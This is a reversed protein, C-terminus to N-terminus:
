EAILDEYRLRKGQMGRVMAEMQDATDMPRDNHRGSFENAYRGLHKVSIHHYTGMIGRKLMAWHSDMGATHAQERVYEGASHSVAEHPRNIGKYATAEDTFIQADDETNGEVFGQLVKKTTAPVVETRILNTPRDIVGAVPTKGVSGRGANLKKNAHKNGEKGGIYTEDAEVPGGFKYDVGDTWNERIRHAMHWATKQTVGIDRHLKMSSTGKIGTTLIYIAIAWKRYGLNSGRMVTGTKVSFFKRCDRCHYPMHPQTRRAVREGDCHPCRLGDPWLTKIFWAEATEDDPFMDFLDMLTMGKRYAKGPGKKGEGAM